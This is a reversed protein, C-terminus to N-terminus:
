SPHDQHGVVWSAFVEVGNVLADFRPSHFLDFSHHGGPLEAYVVPNPSERRLKAVLDRAQSVPVLNDMAGHAVFVPPAHSADYSLPSSPSDGDPGLGYYDGCYGYLLVAGTVTTDCDEFGPQYEAMGPTLATIAAMHGGASSGAVVLVSPDAGYEAGHRRGGAIVKKADVMHDVFGASPRLRYNASICVWGGAALRYLLSRAERNKRGGQYGGGHWYVVMPANAASPQRYVDLLHASGADGYPVDAIREVDFRRVLFPLTAIRGWRLRADVTSDFRWQDGLGEHLAGDVVAATTLGRHLVVALGAVTVLAVAAAARGLTSVLDGQSFALGTWGLLWWLALIPVENVVLGIHSGSTGLIGDRRPPRLAFATGAAAFGVAAAYGLPTTM